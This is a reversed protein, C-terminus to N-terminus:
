VHGEGDESSRGRKLEAVIEAVEADIKSRIWKRVMRALRLMLGFRSRPWKARRVDAALSKRDYGALYAPDRLCSLYYGAEPFNDPTYPKSASM